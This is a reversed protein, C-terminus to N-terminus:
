RVFVVKEVLTKPDVVIIKTVNPNAKLNPLEVTEWFNWPRLTSGVYARVEGAAQRAYAAFCRELSQISAPSSTDWEPMKIGQREVVGELTVRGNKNALNLAHKEGGVGDTKGSWFSAKNPETKLQVDDFYKTVKGAGKPLLATKYAVYDKIARGM